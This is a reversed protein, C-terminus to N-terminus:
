QDKMERDSLGTSVAKVWRWTHWFRWLRRGRMRAASEVATTAFTPRWWDGAEMDKALQKVIGATPFWRSIPTSFGQKRKALIDPPLKHRGLQKLLGKLAWDPNRLAAPVRGALAAMTRDLIPVRVELGYRMSCRDMKRLCVAPLFLQRDLNQLRDFGTLAGNDIAEYDAAADAAASNDLLEPNILHRLETESFAGMLMAYGAMPRDPLARRGAWRRLTNRPSQWWAGQDGSPGYHALWQHYWKYGGFLEDGGEGSLMVKFRTAALKSVYAASLAASSAFPEDFCDALEGDFDRGTDIAMKEIWHPFGYHRCLGAAAASEDYGPDDIAITLCTPKHGVEACAAAVLSSDFGGSLFIGVDVDALLHKEVSKCLGEWVLAAAATETLEDDPTIPWRWYQETTARGTETEVKMWTAPPLQMVGQYMTAPAPVGIHQLSQLIAAPDPQPPEEDLALLAKVESAFVLSRGDHQYYLPKIGFVDRAIFCHGINEDWLAFAFMGELRELLGAFGWAEYGHVLVETDSRSRFEHDELLEERLAPANYIEGNYTVMIRGDENTMPQRGNESLDVISLRAHGFTAAGIAHVGNGDPGRHALADVMSTVAVRQRAVTQPDTVDAIQGAIGCM